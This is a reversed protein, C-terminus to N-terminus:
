TATSPTREQHSSLESKYIIKVRFADYGTTKQQAQHVQETQSPPHIRTRPLENTITLLAFLIETVGYIILRIIQKLYYHILHIVRLAQM